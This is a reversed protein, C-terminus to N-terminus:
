ANGSEPVQIAAFAVHRIVLRVIYEPSERFISLLTKELMAKVIVPVTVLLAPSVIWFLPITVLWPVMLLEPIMLLPAQVPTLLLEPLMFLKPVMVLEPVMALEPVKMLEPVMVSLGPLMLVLLEQPVSILEPVSFSFEPSVMVNQPM